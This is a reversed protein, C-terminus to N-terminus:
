EVGNKVLELIKERNPHGEQLEDHDKNQELWYDACAQSDFYKDKAKQNKLPMACNMCHRPGWGIM